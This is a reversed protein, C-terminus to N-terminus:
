AGATEAHGRLAEAQYYGAADLDGNLTADCALLAMAFPRIQDADLSLGGLGAILNLQTGGNYRQLGFSAIDVADEHPRRQGFDIRLTDSACMELQSDADSTHDVCWGTHTVPTDSPQPVTAPM